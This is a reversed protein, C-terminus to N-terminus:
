CILAFLSFFPKRFFHLSVLGRWHPRNARRLQILVPLDAETQLLLPICILCVYLPIVEAIIFSFATMGVVLSLWTVWHTVTNSQLHRSGRLFKVFVFIASLHISIIAGALLGPM